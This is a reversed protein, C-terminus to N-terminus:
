GVEDNQQKEIEIIANGIIEVIRPIVANGLCKLRDVRHPIEDVMGCISPKIEGWGPRKISDSSQVRETESLPNQELCFEKRGSESYSGNSQKAHGVIWVRDRRHPANVACAPIIFAQVEYGEKELAVCLDEFAMGDDLTILGYVNELIVWRPHFEQIVRLTEPWLWRDDEKGRRKGAISAPQCPFGATIVDIKLEMSHFTLTRIDDWLPVNPWHKNLVQRAYPDIECFAETEMGARELALSFGGLGSFLDLVKLLASRVRDSGKRGKRIEL